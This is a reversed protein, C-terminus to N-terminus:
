KCFCLSRGKFRLVKDKRM